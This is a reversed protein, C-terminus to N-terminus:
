LSRRGRGVTRALMASIQAESKKFSQADPTSVNFVIQAPSQGMQASVGLKGDPGKALPMIAEAGAEGMVGLAGRADQMAVPSAIVGGNAFPTVPAGSFLGSVGKTFSSGLAGSLQGFLGSALTDLPKLASNLAMGSLKLAMSKLTKDLSNGKVVADRISSSFVSGFRATQREMETMSKTFSSTDARIPILIEEETVTTM